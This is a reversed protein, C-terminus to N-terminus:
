AKTTTFGSFGYFFNLRTRFRTLMSFIWTKFGENEINNLLCKNRTQSIEGLVNLIEFLNKGKFNENMFNM